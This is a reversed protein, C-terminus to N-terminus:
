EVVSVDPAQFAPIVNFSVLKLLNLKNVLIVSENHYPLSIMASKRTIRYKDILFM